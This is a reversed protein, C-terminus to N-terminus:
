SIDNGRDEQAKSADALAGTGAMLRAYDESAAMVDDVRRGVVAIVGVWTISRSSVPSKGMKFVALLRHHSVGAGCLLTWPSRSRSLWRECGSWNISLM